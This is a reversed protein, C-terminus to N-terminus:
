RQQLDHVGLCLVEGDRMASVFCIQMFLIFM